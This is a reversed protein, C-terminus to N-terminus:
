YLRKYQLKRYQSWFHMPCCFGKLKMRKMQNLPVTLPSFSFKGDHWFDNLLPFYHSLDYKPANKRWYKNIGNKLYVTAMWRVNTEITQHSFALRILTTYFGPQIEWEALKAEAPKLLSTDQSCVCRLADYVMFQPSNADM